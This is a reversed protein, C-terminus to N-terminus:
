AHARFFEWMADNANVADSFPGLVSAYATLMAEDGGFWTHGAGEVVYSVVDARARCATHSTRTVTPAVTRERTVRCRNIDVWGDVAAQAGYQWYAAGGGGSPNIPDATGTFTIVPTGRRPSCTAPDPVWTGDAQQVPVGARLGVVPAIADFVGPAQCAVASIMRGGGSYGTAFVQSDDGCYRPVAAAVLEQLFRVDDPTGAPAATVGPVNWAWTGESAGPVSGQPAVLVAAQKEASAELEAIDVLLDPTDNSGHLAVLLPLGGRPTRSQLASQPVYVLATRSVGDVTLTWTQEGATLGAVCRSVPRSDRGAEVPGAPSATAPSVGVALAMVLAATGAATGAARRVTRPLHM